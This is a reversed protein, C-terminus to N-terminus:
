QGQASSGLDYYTPEIKCEHEHGWIVLDFFPPIDTLPLFAGTTRTMSRRPRNQHIVLITYWSEPDGDDPRIFEVNNTAFARCLRDDRQSSIGYIALKTDGKKLLIPM